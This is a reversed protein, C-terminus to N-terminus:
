AAAGGGSSGDGGGRGGGNGELGALGELGYIQASSAGNTSSPEKNLEEIVDTLNEIIVYIKGTVTPINISPYM